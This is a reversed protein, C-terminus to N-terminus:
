DALPKCSGLGRSVEFRLRVGGETDREESGAAQPAAEEPSGGLTPTDEADPKEREELGDFSYDGCAARERSGCEPFWWCTTCGSM